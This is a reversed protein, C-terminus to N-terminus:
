QNVAIDCQEAGEPVPRTWESRDALPSLNASSRPSKTTSGSDLQKTSNQSFEEVRLSIPTDNYAMHLVNGYIIINRYM